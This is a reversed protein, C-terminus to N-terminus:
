GSGARPHNSGPATIARWISHLVASILIIVCWYFMFEFFAIGIAALPSAGQLVPPRDVVGMYVAWIHSLIGWVGGLLCYVILPNWPTKWSLRWALSAILATLVAQIMPLPWRLWEPFLYRYVTEWYVRLVWFWLLGWFVATTLIITTKLQIFLTPKIRWTLGTVLGLDLAAFLLLGRLLIENTIKAEPLLPAM